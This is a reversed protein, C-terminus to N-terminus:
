STFISQMKGGDQERKQLHRETDTHSPLKFKMGNILEPVSSDSGPKHHVLEKGRCLVSSAPSLLPLIKDLSSKAPVILEKSVSLEKSTHRRDASVSIEAGRLCCPIRESLQKISMNRRKLNGRSKEEKEEESGCDSVVVAMIEQGQEIIGSPSLSM